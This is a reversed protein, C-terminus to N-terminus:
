EQWRKGNIYRLDIKRQTDQGAGIFTIKVPGADGPLGTPSNGYLGTDDVLGSTVIQSGTIRKIRV